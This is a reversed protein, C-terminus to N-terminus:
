NKIACIRFLTRHATFYFIAHPTKVGNMFRHESRWLPVNHVQWSLFTLDNAQTLRL